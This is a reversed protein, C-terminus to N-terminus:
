GLGHVVGGVLPEGKTRARTTDSFLGDGLRNRALVTFEYVTEPRLQHLTLSTVEASLGGVRMTRWDTTSSSLVRYRCLYFTYTFTDWLRNGLTHNRLQDRNKATLRCSVHIM